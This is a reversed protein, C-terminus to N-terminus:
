GRTGQPREAHECLLGGLLHYELYARAVDIAGDMKASKGGLGIEGEGKQFRFALTEGACLGRTMVPELLPERDLGFLFLDRQVISSLKDSLATLSLEWAGERLMAAVSGQRILAANTGDLSRLEARVLMWALGLAGFGLSLDAVRYGKRHPDQFSGRTNDRMAMLAKVVLHAISPARVLARAREETYVTEPRPGGEVVVDFPEFDADVLPEQTRLHRHLDLSLADGKKFIELHIAIPTRAGTTTTGDALFELDAILTKEQYRRANTVTIRRARRDITVETDDNELALRNSENAGRSGVGALPCVIRGPFYRVGRKRHTEIDPFMM